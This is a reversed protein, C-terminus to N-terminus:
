RREGDKVPAPKAGPPLPKAAPDIRYGDVYVMKVTTKENLFDGDRVVLNAVKGVALTGLRNEVGALQAAGVTLTRLAAERPFGAAVLVRLQKIFDDPGKTGLTSLGVPIGAERLEIVNRVSEDYKRKREATRAPDEGAVAQPPEGFNLSAIVTVSAAKLDSVRRYAQSGGVILPRLNFESAVALSRDIESPSNAVFAVAAKGELFPVLAELAADSAPRQPGGALYSGRVQTQWQADLWAQRVQAVRGLLSGPYSGGDAPGNFDSALVTRSVVVADRNPRGSLNVLAGVGGLYGGAPVAHLTTFGASRYPKAFDENLSLLTRAELEPRIGKRNADRMQAPAYEVTSPAAGGTPADQDTVAAPLSFAKTNWADIFGPTVTLGTGSYVQVGAPVAVNAGIATIRGGEIVITGKEVVNGDGIEIRADVIAHRRNESPVSSQYASLAVFALLPVPM